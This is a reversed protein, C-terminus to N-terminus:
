SSHALNPKARNDISFFIKGYGKLENHASIM